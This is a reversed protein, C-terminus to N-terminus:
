STREERKGDLVSSKSKDYQKKKVRYPSEFDLTSKAHYHTDSIRQVDFTAKRRRKVPRYM